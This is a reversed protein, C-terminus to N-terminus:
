WSYQLLYEMGCLELARRLLSTPLGSCPADHRTPCGPLSQSIVEQDPPKSRSAHDPTRIRLDPVAPINRLDPIFEIKTSLIYMYTQHM